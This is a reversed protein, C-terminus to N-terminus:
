DHPLRTQRGLFIKRIWRIGLLRRKLVLFALDRTESFVLGQHGTGVLQHQKIGAVFFQKFEEGFENKFETPLLTMFRRFNASPEKTSQFSKPDLNPRKEGICERWEELLSEYIHELDSEHFISINLHQLLSRISEETAEENDSFCGAIFTGAGDGLEVFISDRNIKFLYRRDTTALVAVREHPVAHKILNRKRFMAKLAGLITILGAITGLVTFLSEM